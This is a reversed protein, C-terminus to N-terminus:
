HFTCSEQESFAIYVKRKYPLILRRVSFYFPQLTFNSLMLITSSKMYFPKLLFNGDWFVFSLNKLFTDVRSFSVFSGKRRIIWISVKFGSVSVIYFEISCVYCVGDWSRFVFFPKGILRYLWMSKSKQYTFTSQLHSILSVPIVIKRFKTYVCWCLSKIM